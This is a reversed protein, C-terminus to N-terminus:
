ADEERVWTRVARGGIRTVIEYDITECWRAWETATPEGHDGPGLLVVEDGAAADPAAVVVQDMCVRGLLPQRRGGLLVEARGSAARPVGDAYGLPVLATRTPAPTTFTHGYSVGQGAPVQKVAVVTARVTMAPVLGLEAGSVVEPAPSFGYCAIGLRVLDHRAGPHLLAGASNALHTVEPRLGAERALRVGEEFASLQAANAPHGPEDACALHSWIGTVLVTGAREAERAAELLPLWEERDAGGRSLGTDLKVQVRATVGAAGAGRVVDALQDQSYAAVDVGRSVLPAFDHRPEALWCLLPGDDGGARLALAEEPTAVGLWDAGASRAARAVPLLGHGYGDAKVVVMTAGVTGDDPSASAGWVFERLRRVNHRVAGLDVEIRARPLPDLPSMALGM